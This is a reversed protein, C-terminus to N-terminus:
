SVSFWRGGYTSLKVPPVALQRARESTIRSALKTAHQCYVVHYIVTANREHEAADASSDIVGDGGTDRPESRSGDGGGRRTTGCNLLTLESAPEVKANGSRQRGFEM